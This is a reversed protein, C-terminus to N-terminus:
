SFLFLAIMGLSNFLIHVAICYSINQSKYRIVGLLVALSLIIIFTAINEYQTHIVTFLISSLILAGINNLKTQAIKTYLWGRFVLEEVVPVFICVSFLLFIVMLASSETGKLDLMFQEAPLNLWQSILSIVLWFIFTVGLYKALMKINIMRVAWFKLRSSWSKGQTAKLLLPLTLISGSLMLSVMVPLSSLWRLREAENFNVGQQIGFFIGFAFGLVLQPLFLIALIWLLTKIHSARYNEPAEISSDNLLIKETM